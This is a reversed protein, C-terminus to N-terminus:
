HKHGKMTVVVSRCSEPMLVRSCTATVTVMVCGRRPLRSILSKQGLPMIDRIPVVLLMSEYASPSRLSVGCLLCGAWSAGLPSTLASTRGRTENQKVFEHNM